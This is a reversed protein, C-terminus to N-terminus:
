LERPFNFVPDQIEMLPSAHLICISANPIKDFGAFGLKIKVSM